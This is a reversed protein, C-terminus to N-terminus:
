IVIKRDNKLTEMMIQESILINLKLINKIEIKLKYQCFKDTCYLKDNPNIVEGILNRSYQFLEFEKNAPTLSKKGGRLGYGSLLYDDSTQFEGEFTFKYKQDKHRHQFQTLIDLSSLHDTFIVYKTGPALEVIESLLSSVHVSSAIKKRGAASFTVYFGSWKEIDNWIKSHSDIAILISETHPIIGSYGREASLDSGKRDELPDSGSLKYSAYGKLLRLSFFLKQQGEKISSKHSKSVPIFLHKENEFTMSLRSIQTKLPLTTYTTLAQSMLLLFVITELRIFSAKFTKM